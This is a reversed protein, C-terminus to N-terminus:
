KQNPGRGFEQNFSDIFNQFEKTRKEHKTRQWALSWKWEAPMPDHDECNTCYDEKFKEYLSDLSLGFFGGGCYM